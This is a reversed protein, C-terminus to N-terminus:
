VANRPNAGAGMDPTNTKATVLAGAARLRQVLVCDAVPVQQRHGPNGYTTRLGATDELDKVGVPLGHLLPLSEGRKVAAEAVRAQTLAREFDTECLANVAPNFAEIRAICAQLLEVPSLQRAGILRRLELASLSLLSTNDPSRM